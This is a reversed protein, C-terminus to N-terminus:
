LSVNGVEKKGEDEQDEEIAEEGDGDEEEEEPPLSPNSEMELWKSHTPEVVDSNLNELSQFNFLFNLLLVSAIDYRKVLCM